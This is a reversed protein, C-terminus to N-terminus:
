PAPPRSVAGLGRRLAHDQRRVLLYAERVVEADGGRFYDYYTFTLRARWRGKRLVPGMTWSPTYTSHPWITPRYGLTSGGRYAGAPDYLAVTMRGNLQASGGNYIGATVKLKGAIMVGTVTLAPSKVVPGYTRDEAAWRVANIFLRDAQRELAVDRVDGRRIHDHIQFGFYVVRGLHYNSVWAALSGSM